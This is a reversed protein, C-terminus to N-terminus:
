VNFRFYMVDGDRVVYDKRELRLKGAEKSERSATEPSTTRSHRSRPASSACEFIPIVAVDSPNSDGRTIPVGALLNRLFSALGKEPVTETNFWDPLGWMM